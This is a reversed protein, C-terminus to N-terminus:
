IILKTLLNFECFTKIKIAFLNHPGKSFIVLAFAVIGALSTNTNPQFITVSINKKTSDITINKLGKVIKKFGSELKSHLRKGSLGLL